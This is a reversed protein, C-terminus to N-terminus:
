RAGIGMILQLRPFRDFVGALILRLLQTSADYHWGVGHTDWRRM